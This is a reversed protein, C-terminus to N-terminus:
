RAMSVHRVARILPGTPSVRTMVRRGNHARDLSPVDIRQRVFSAPAGCRASDDASTGLDRGWRFTSRETIASDPNRGSHGPHPVAFPTRLTPKALRKQTM